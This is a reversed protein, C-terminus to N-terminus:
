EFIVNISMGWRLSENPVGNILITTTYTQDGEKLESIQSIKEVTGNLIQTADAEPELTVLQGVQINVVDYETLDDTEVKWASTDALIILPAGANIFENEQYNIKIITGDFPAIISLQDIMAQAADIQAQAADIRAQVLNLDSAKPGDQLDQMDQVAKNYTTQASELDKQLQAYENEIVTLDAKKDNLKELANNMADEYKKRTANDKDLDAYDDYDEKADNYDNTAEVLDATTDDIRDQYNDVDFNDLDTQAQDVLTKSDIMSQWAEVYALPANDILNQQNNQAEILALKANQLEALYAESNALSSLIDGQNVKQGEEVQISAIRASAGFALSVDKAPLLTGDVIVRADESVVVPIESSSSTNDTTSCGVITLSLIVLLIMGLYKKQM